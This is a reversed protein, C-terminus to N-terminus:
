QCRTVLFQKFIDELPRLSFCKSFLITSRTNPTIWYWPPITQRSKTTCGPFALIIPYKGIGHSRSQETIVKGVDWKGFTGEDQCQPTRSAYGQETMGRLLHDSFKSLSEQTFNTIAPLNWIMHLQEDLTKKKQTNDWITHAFGWHILSTFNRANESVNIYKYIYM